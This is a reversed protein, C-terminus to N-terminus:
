VHLPKRVELMLNVGTEESLVTVSGLPARDPALARLRAGDRYFLYWDLIYELSHRFPRRANMTDTVNTTLLLGGPALFDYCLSMLRKCVQDSLYDFLGACFILDYQKEPAQQVSKAAEKLLQHVSKRVLEVPTTRQFQRKIAGLTADLHQLTEANFDLLTFSVRESATQERLFRQVEVAPGCGLSFVRTTQKNARSGASLELLKKELYGIRNRHAQVPAQGLLWVNIVKAFLSGGEYPSRVMMDVMEYDGAYGLPKFYARHAFPSNMLLPHLQRRLYQRHTPQLAPDLSEAITEFREIFGDINSIIPEALEDLVHRELEVRQMSPSSRIGLEVQELWLRLDTLFTQLDAIVGKYEPLVRYLKQWEVIFEAFDKRLRGNAMHDFEVDIWSGEELAAECVTTMGTHILNHIVAKGFYIQRDQMVIRFEGLVESLRLVESPHYLEFAIQYRSLRLPSARLELGQSSQFSVVSDKVSNDNDM